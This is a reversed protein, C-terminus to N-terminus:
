FSGRLTHVLLTMIAINGLKGFELLRPASSHVSISRSLNLNRKNDVLCSGFERMIVRNGQGAWQDPM